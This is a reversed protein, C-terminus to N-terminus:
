NIICICSTSDILKQEDFIEMVEEEEDSWSKGDIKGDLEIIKNKEDIEIKDKSKINKEKEM